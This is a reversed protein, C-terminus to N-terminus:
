NELVRKTQMFNLCISPLFLTQSKLSFLGYNPIKFSYAKTKNLEKTYNIIYPHSVKVVPAEFM